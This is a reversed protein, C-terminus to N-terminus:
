RIRVNQLSNPDALIREVRLLWDEGTKNKEM